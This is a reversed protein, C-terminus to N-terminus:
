SHELGWFIMGVQGAMSQNDIKAQTQEQGPNQIDGYIYIAMGFLTKLKSRWSSGIKPAIAMIETSSTTSAKIM